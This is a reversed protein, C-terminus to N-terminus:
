RRIAWGLACSGHLSGGLRTRLSYARSRRHKAHVRQTRWKVRQLASADALAVLGFGIRDSGIRDACPPRRMGDQFRAIRHQASRTRAPTGAHLVVPAARERKHRCAAPERPQKIEVCLRPVARPRVVQEAVRAHLLCPTGHRPRSASERGAIAIRLPQVASCTTRVPGGITCYAACQRCVLMAVGHPRRCSIPWEPLSSHHVNCAQMRCTAQQM